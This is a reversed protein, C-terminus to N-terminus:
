HEKPHSNPAPRTQVKLMSELSKAGIEQEKIKHSVRAQRLGGPVKRGVM